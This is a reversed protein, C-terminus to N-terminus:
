RVGLAPNVAVRASTAFTITYGDPASRAGSTFGILTGAGPRNDIVIQYGWAEGLKNAIERAVFDTTGAPPYPVVLRVPKTPYLAQAHAFSGILLASVIAPLRNFVTTM